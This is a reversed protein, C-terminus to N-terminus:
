PVHEIRYALEMTADKRAAQELAQAAVLTLYRVGFENYQYLAEIVGEADQFSQAWHRDREPSVLPLRNTPQCIKCPLSGARVESPPIEALGYKEVIYCTAAHYTASVGIRSVVYM